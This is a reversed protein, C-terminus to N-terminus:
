RGALQQRFRRAERTASHEPGYGASLPAEAKALLERAAASDGRQMRVRALALLAGGIVGSRTSDQGEEIAQKLANQALSEASDVEGAGLAVLSAEVLLAPFHPWRVRREPYGQASFHEQFLRHAEPLDGRAGALGAKLNGLWWKGSSLPM